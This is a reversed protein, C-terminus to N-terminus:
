TVRRVCRSQSQQAQDNGHPWSGESFECPWQNRCELAMTMTPPARRSSGMVVLAEGLEDVEPVAFPVEDAEIPPLAKPKRIKKEAVLRAKEAAIRELLVRLNM